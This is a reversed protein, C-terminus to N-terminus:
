FEDPYEAKFRAYMADFFERGIQRARVDDSHMEAQKVRFGGARIADVVQRLDFGDPTPITFWLDVEGGCGGPNFDLVDPTHVVCGDINPLTRLAGFLVDQGTQDNWWEIHIESYNTM